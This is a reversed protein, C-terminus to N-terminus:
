LDFADVGRRFKERLCLANLNGYERKNGRQHKRALFTRGGGSPCVEYIRKRGRATSAQKGIKTQDTWKGKFVSLAHFAGTARAMNAARKKLGHSACPEAIAHHNIKEKRPKRLWSQSGNKSGTSRPKKCRTGLGETGRSCPAVNRATEAPVALV